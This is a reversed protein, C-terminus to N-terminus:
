LKILAVQENLLEYMKKNFDYFYPYDEKFYVAEKYDILYRVYVKKEQIGIARKFTISSDPMTLSVSQPLADVKYNDPIDFSCTIRYSSPYGFDVNTLRTESLFPNNRFSSFLNTNFYIYNNESGTLDINFNINQLLPLTDQDMNELKLSNIKINNNNGRLYDIYKKEGDTKYQQMANVRNYSFNNIQATGDMKGERSIAGQILAVQRVPSKKRLHVIDYLEHEKDIYLGDSNLLQAPIENYVNYKNTADLIYVNDVLKAYVVARNFQKLFTFYPVVKGHERTSVVMPYVTLGSQKLLHFLVLNIEASNGTKKDWAKVTGDNTYWRDVGDWKMLNKIKDFIFVMKAEDTKLAKAETIIAEEGALKRKLQGGFDADDALIGGVKAWSDSYTRTYGGTPNIGTLQHSISELNDIDSSMYPERALSHVNALSRVVKQLEYSIPREGTLISRAESPKSVSTLPRSVNAKQKFYFIDPITTALESYRTPIDDQFYWDPFNAISNTNLVYKYEVVSGSKVDPMSFVLAARSKDLQQTFVQKKDIKIIQPKGDVMNITQAQLGTIYELHGGSVYEIRINAQKKGQDNFIKIRKHRAMSLDLRADYAIEAKDFLVMANAGPEFDCSKLELDANDIKGFPQTPQNTQALASFSFLCAIVLTLAKPM